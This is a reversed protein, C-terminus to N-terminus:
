MTKILNKQILEAMNVSNIKLMVSDGISQVKAMPLLVNRECAPCQNLLFTQHVDKNLKILIYPFKWGSTEVMVDVVTGIDKADNGIVQRKLLNAINRETVPTKLFPQMARQAHKLVINDSVSKVNEVSFDVRAGSILPKKVGLEDHSEKELKISIGSVSWDGVAPYTFGKVWGLLNGDNGFVEMQEMKTIREM